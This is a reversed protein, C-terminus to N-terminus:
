TLLPSFFFLRRQFEFALLVIGFPLFLTILTEELFCAEFNFSGVVGLRAAKSV